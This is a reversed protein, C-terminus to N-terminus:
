QKIAVFRGRSFKGAKAMDLMNMMEGGMAQFVEMNDGIIKLADYTLQMTLMKLYLDICEAFHSGCDESSVLNFGYKKLLPAM